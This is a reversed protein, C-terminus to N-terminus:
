KNKVRKKLKNEENNEEKNIKKTKIFAIILLIVFVLFIVGTILLAISAYNTKKISDVVKGTTVSVGSENANNDTSNNDEDEGNGGWNFLGEFLGEGKEAIVIVTSSLGVGNKGDAPMFKVNIKTETTGEKAVKITFYAKKEEGAALSFKDDKIKTYNELEGSSSLEIDLSVNNVNKVLIYKEISDGQTARLIMRANGISGTIALVNGILAIAFLLSLVFVGFLIKKDM